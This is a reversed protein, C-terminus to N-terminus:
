DSAGWGVSVNLLNIHNFFQLLIVKGSLKNNVANVKSSNLVDSLCNIGLVSVGSCLRANRQGKGHQDRIINHVGFM